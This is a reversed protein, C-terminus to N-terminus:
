LKPLFMGPNPLSLLINMGDVMINKTTDEIKFREKFADTIRVLNEKLDEPSTATYMTKTELMYKGDNGVWITTPNVSNGREKEVVTRLSSQIRYVNPVDPLMNKQHQYLCINWYLNSIKLFLNGKPGVTKHGFIFKPPLLEGSMSNFKVEGDIIQPQVQTFKGVVHNYAFAQKGVLMLPANFSSSYLKFQRVLFTKVTDLEQLQYLNNLDVVIDLSKLNNSGIITSKHIVGVWNKPVTIRGNKHKIYVFLAILWYMRMMASKTPEFREANGMNTDVTVYDYLSVHGRRKMAYGRIIPLIDNFTSIGYIGKEPAYHFVFTQTANVKISVFPCLLQSTKYANILTETTNGGLQNGPYFLSQSVATRFPDILNM